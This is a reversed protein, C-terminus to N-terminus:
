SAVVGLSEPHVPTPMAQVEPLVKEAFLRLSKEAQDREMGGYFDHIVLTELSTTRQVTKIRDLIQDPTGILQTNRTNQMEADALGVDATQRELYEEYGKVGEFGPNNWEFYHRQAATFQNHYFQWGEEAEAETEACYMWM